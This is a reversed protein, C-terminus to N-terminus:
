GSSRSRSPPTKLSQHYIGLVIADFMNQWHREKWKRDQTLYVRLDPYRSVVAEAAERKGAWGNGAVSRRATKASYTVFKMRHARAIRRLLRGLAPLGALRDLPRNPISEVVLTRPRHARIWTEVAERVVSLRQHEPTSRLRLVNSDLLRKGRLVAYGLDRLGPDIALIPHNTRTSM